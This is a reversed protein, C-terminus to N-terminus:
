DKVIFKDLGARVELSLTGDIDMKIPKSLDLSLVGMISKADVIYKGSYLTIEGSHKNTVNVFDKVENMNNFKIMTEIM